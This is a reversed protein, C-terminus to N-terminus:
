FWDRGRGYGEDYRGIGRNGRTVRIPTRSQRDGYPDGADTRERSRFGRDYDVEGRGFDGRYRNVGSMGEGMRTVGYHGHEDRYGRLDSPAHWDRDYRGAWSTGGRMSGGGVHMEDRDDRDFADEMREWGRRVAGQARDIFGPGGGASYGRDYRDAGVGWGRGFDRDGPIPGGRAMGGGHMGGARWGAQFPSLDRDYGRNPVNWERDSREAADATWAGDSWSNRQHLGGERDMPRGYGAGGANWGRNMGGYGTDMASRNEYDRRLHEDPHVDQGEFANEVREWGRRLSGQARDVFGGRGRDPDGRHGYGRDDNRDFLAM